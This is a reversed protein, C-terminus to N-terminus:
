GSQRKSSGEPILIARGTFMWVPVNGQHVCDQLCELLRTHIGTLKKFWYGGVLDPGAAKWNAMINVGKRMDEMTIIIDEQM